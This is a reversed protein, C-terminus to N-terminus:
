LKKKAWNSLSYLGTFFSLILLYLATNDAERDIFIDYCIMITMAIIGITCLISLIHSKQKM